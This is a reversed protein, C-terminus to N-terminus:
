ERRTRVIRLTVGAKNKRDQPNSGGQEYSGSPSERRTRVIRLTVGAKNM